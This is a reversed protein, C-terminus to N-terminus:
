GHAAGALHLRVQRGAGSGALAALPTAIGAAELVRAAANLDLARRLGAYSTTLRPNIEIVVPGDSGNVYDIGFYGHLGDIASAVSQALGALEPSVPSCNVQLAALELAGDRCDVQQRNVSLVRVGHAGGVVSLSMAQGDIWPQAVYGRGAAALAAGAARRGAVVRAGCCGAGDDPKVVWRGEGGQVIPPRSRWTPVARVGATRLALSTAFKSATLAIAPPRAGILTRGAALVARAARELEGGTEPAIPWVADARAIEVALAAQPAVDPTRWCVQAARGAACVFEPLRADRAYSVKLGPVELLDGILASAMLDAERALTAPLPAGVLGGGGIFEFVHIRVVSQGNPGELHDRHDVQHASLHHMGLAAIARM